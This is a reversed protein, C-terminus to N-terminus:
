HPRRHKEGRGGLLGAAVIRRARHPERDEADRRRRAAQVEGVRHGARHRDHRLGDPVRDHRDAGARHGTCQPLRKPRGQVLGGGLLRPRRREPIWFERKAPHGGRRRPAIEHRRADVRRQGQGVAQGRSQLQCRSLRRVPRERRGVGGIARVFPRDHDVHDRRGPRPGRELRVAARLEHGALGLQRLRPWAHPFHALERRDAPDPLQRQRRSNGARHHFHAGGGQLPRHRVRRGRAQFADPEALGSQLRHQQHVRVRLLPQDLSDARHRQLHAVKPDRWRVPPRPRRM